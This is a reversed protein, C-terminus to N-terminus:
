RRPRCRGPSTSRTWSRWGHRRLRRSPTAATSSGSALRQKTVWRGLAPDEAWRNPVVCDGHRRKYATIKALQAEWGADDRAGESRRKNLAAASMEWAFGLTDLKAVRAVTIGPQPDGRDLKRKLTQQKM